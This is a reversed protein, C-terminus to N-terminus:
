FGARAAELQEPKGIDLWRADDIRFPLIPHGEGALRLYPDLISFAGRETLLALFRPSIVHVGGFALSRVEGVAPRSRLELGKSEDTRGFLGKEDFLLYRSTTRQMVALTALADPRALQAGYLAGLDLDSLIDANHLFFPADGRFLDRSHLLAGGTELPRDPERSFHVEVGWGGREVVFREIQDGLHHVNIILRDAGAEILRRVVHELIPIGGVELLAKPLRDTLPRLRTGLGAALLM